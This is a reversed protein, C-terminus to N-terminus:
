SNGNEGKTSLYKQKNINIWIKRCIIQKIKTLKQFQLNNIMKLYTWKKMNFFM